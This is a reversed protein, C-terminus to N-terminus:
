IQALLASTGASAALTTVIGRRMGFILLAALATLGLARPSLSAWVPIEASLPGLALVATEAFLVHLAFFVSLNLIVGLVAATVGSLAGKLAPRARLWDLHAALAFIFLFSPLFMMWLTLGGALLALPLGGLEAGARMAVFQTALVLPGPTTEALGLADIMTEPAVWSADQAMYALAAYAGGFSVVALKAFFSVIETLFPADILLLLGLPALWLATWAALRTLPLPPAPPPPTAPAEPRFLLAGAGAALALIVPFPVGGAYIALFALLALAPKVPGDLTRQALRALAQLVIVIVTAQVGLLLAAALPDEGLAAHLLALAGIVLAGPLVFLGGAILGGAVGRQSWGAYTALQMAEPGPLLMCLSLADLYRPEDLWRREEVTSRHLLAIQAAPGGFSLWGIRHFVRAIERLTPATM